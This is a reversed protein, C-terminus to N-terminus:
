SNGMGQFTLSSSDSSFRCGAVNSFAYSVNYFFKGWQWNGSTDLAFIFGHDNAAPAFDDSTTNGAVIILGSNPDYKICNVHEDSSGGAYLPMLKYSCTDTM